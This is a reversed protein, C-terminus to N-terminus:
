MKFASFVDRKEDKNEKCMFAKIFGDACMSAYALDNSEAYAESFMLLYQKRLMSFAKEMEDNM